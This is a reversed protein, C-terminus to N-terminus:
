RVHEPQPQNDTSALRSTVSSSAFLCMSPVRWLETSVPNQAVAPPVHVDAVAVSPGAPAAASAAAAMPEGGGNGASALAETPANSKRRAKCHGNPGGGDAPSHSQTYAAPPRITAKLRQQM